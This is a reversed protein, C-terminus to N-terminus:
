PSTAPQTPNPLQNQALLSLMDGTAKVITESAHRAHLRDAASIANDLVQKNLDIQAQAASRMLELQAAPDM